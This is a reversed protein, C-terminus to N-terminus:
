FAYEFALTPTLPATLGTHTLSWNVHGGVVLTHTVNWKM